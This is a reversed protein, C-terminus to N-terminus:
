IWLHYMVIKHGTIKNWDEEVDMDWSLVKLALRIVPIHVSRIKDVFHYSVFSLFSIVALFWAHRISFTRRCLFFSCGLLFVNDDWGGSRWHYRRGIRWYASGYRARDNIGSFSHSILPSSLIIYVAVVHNLSRFSRDNIIPGDPYLARVKVAVAGGMSHGHM